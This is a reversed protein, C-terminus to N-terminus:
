SYKFINKIAGGFFEDLYDSGKIFLQRISPIRKPDYVEAYANERGQILDSLIMSSIASYTMGNGSFATAVYEHDTVRGILPIGDSPELIPGAWRRTITYEIQLTKLYDELAQFNKGEDMKVMTKIDEGGIIMRDFEEGQDIRFYHYPNETDWYLGEKLQAKPIQAEYVYSIYMGRKLFLRIRNYFPQYTAIVINKASVFGNETVAMIRDGRNLKTVESEQFIQVGMDELKRALGFLFKLPHFKAQQPIEYHGSNRFNLELDQKINRVNFGLESEFQQEEKLSEYEKLTNAYIYASVRKFECDIQEELIIKELLNIAEGGSQWILRTNEVGFLDVLEQTDTDISQTIFATTYETAGSGIKKKELIVVKKGEKALLYATLIGALGAGIVVTDAELNEALKSFQPKEVDAKWSPQELINM